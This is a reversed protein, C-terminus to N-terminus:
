AVAQPTLDECSYNVVKYLARAAPSRQVLRGADQRSLQRQLLLRLRSGAPAALRRDLGPVKAAVCDLYECLQEAQELSLWGPSLAREVSDTLQSFFVKSPLAPAPMSIVTFM